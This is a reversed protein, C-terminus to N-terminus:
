AQLFKNAKPTLEFTNEAIPKGLVGRECLYGELALLTVINLEAPMLNRKEVGILQKAIQALLIEPKM